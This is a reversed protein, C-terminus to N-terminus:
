IIGHEARWKMRREFQICCLVIVISPLLMGWAFMLWPNADKGGPLVSQMGVLNLVDFPTNHLSSLSLLLFFVLGSLGISVFTNAQYTSFLMGLSSCAAIVMGFQLAIMGVYVIPYERVMTLYFFVNLFGVEESNPMIPYDMFLCVFVFLFCSAFSAALIVITNALFKSRTYTVTDTRNLIMCLYQCNEERCFSGTYLGSFVLAVVAKFVDFAMVGQLLDVAGVYEHREQSTLSNYSVIQEGSSALLLLTAGIIMILLKKNEFCRKLDMRLVNKFM